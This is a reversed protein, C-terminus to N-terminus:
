RHRRVARLRRHPIGRGPRQRHVAQRAHGAAPGRRLCLHRRQDGPHRAARPRTASRWSRSWDGSRTGSSGAWAPRTPCRPPSCPPRPVPRRTRRSWRPWPRRGSCPADGNIVIVTGARDPAADLAIRVAHGTGRQEAQLVANADPAVEALHGTVQDAGHGVVVLTHDPALPAAAALVHGVLTRGLLPHLVKPLASKMRKGEGAALVVVTRVRPQSVLSSGDSRNATQPGM